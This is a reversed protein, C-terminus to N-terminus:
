GLNPVIPNAGGSQLRCKVVPCLVARKAESRCPTAPDRRLSKEHLPLNAGRGRDAAIRRLASCHPALPFRLFRRSIAPLQHRSPHRRSQRFM